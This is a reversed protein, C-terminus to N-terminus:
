SFAKTSPHGLGFVAGGRLRESFLPVLLAALFPVRLRYCGVELLKTADPMVQDKVLLGAHRVLIEGFGDVIVHLPQRAVPPGKVTLVVADSSLRDCCDATSDIPGTRFHAITFTGTAPLTDLFMAGNIVIHLLDFWAKPTPVDKRAIPDDFTLRMKSRPLQSNLGTMVFDILPDLPCPPL